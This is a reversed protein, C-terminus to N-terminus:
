KRGFKISKDEYRVAFPGVRLASCSGNPSMVHKLCVVLSIIFTGIRVEVMPELLLVALATIVFAAITMSSDPTIVIVFKFILMIIILFLLVKSVGILGLLTGFSVSLAKGGKFWMFPSFAHGLAPAIMVPVLYLGSVGMYSAALFVPVFAKLVDFAICVAGIVAGAAAVANAGGPNKDDAANRIDIKRLLRPIIYSYMVSGSLFGIVTM